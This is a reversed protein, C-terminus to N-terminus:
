DMGARPAPGSLGDVYCTLVALEVAEGGDIFLAAPQCARTRAGFERFKAAADSLQGLNVVLAIAAAVALAGNIVARRPTRVAAPALASLGVLLLAAAPYIYRSQEPTTSGARLLGALVFETVTGVLAGGLLPPIRWGHRAIVILWGLALWVIVAGLLDGLGSLGGVTNAVGRLAFGPVALLSSPNLWEALGAQVSRGYAVFWLLYGLVPPAVVGLRWREGPQLVVQVAAAAVFCLGIGSTAVSALLLLSAAVDAPKEIRRLLLLAWLGSATSAVFGMQYAWFLDDAGSGLFLILVAAGLGWWPASPRFSHFVALAVVLHFGLLVALYPLYNAVGVSEVILRYMVVLGTHWHDNHPTLWSAPDSLSRTELVNWEDNFFTAGRALWLISACAVFCAAGLLAAPGVTGWRGQRNEIMATIGPNVRQGQTRSAPSPEGTVPQRRLRAPSPQGALSSSASHWAIM